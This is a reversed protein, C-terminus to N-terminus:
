RGSRASTATDRDTGTPNPDDVPERTLKRPHSIQRLPHNTQPVLAVFNGVGSGRFGQCESGRIRLCARPRSHSGLPEHIM